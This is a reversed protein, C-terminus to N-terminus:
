RETLVSSFFKERRREQVAEVINFQPGVPRRKKTPIYEEDDTSMEDDNVQGGRRGKAQTIMDETRLLKFYFFVAVEGEPRGRAQDLHKPCGICSWASSGNRRHSSMLYFNIVRDCLDVGRMNKNYEAVIKHRSM